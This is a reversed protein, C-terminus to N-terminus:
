GHKRKVLQPFGHKLWTPIREYSRVGHKDLTVRLIMSEREAAFAKPFPVDFVFNGLSYAVMGDGGLPEIPQLVHPHSGLILKIGLRYLRRALLRQSAAPQVAGENGWHVLAVAVDSGNVAEAIARERHDLRYGDLDCLAVFGLRLGRHDIFVPRVYAGQVSAGALSKFTDNIGGPGCDGSHNNALSVLSFGALQKALSEPGRLLNPKTARFPQHTLACELNGVVFDAQFLAPRVGQFADAPKGAMLRDAIHRGLMVDGVADLTWTPGLALPALWVLMM